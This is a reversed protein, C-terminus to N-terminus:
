PTGKSADGKPPAPVKAHTPDAPDSPSSDTKSESLSSSDATLPIHVTAPMGLPLEDKPDKVFARVEYVLSTRLEETQVSKPTFEAIPSIFGIWGEFKRNPFSDVDISVKMGGHVKGLNIESVYARVWKPDIVALSFVPKTPSAMDGPEMLRTRVVSNAPAHLQADSLQQRLYALQADDAKLRAENEAVEEKRPGLIWVELAKKLADLRADATEAASKANDVDQRSIAEGHSRDSLDKMRAYNRQANGADAKAAEMNAKAQAIEEPRNGHHLREVVARQANVTAEAQVVQPEIRRTDVRALVQGKKIRDGEQVLVDTIRENNQFSLQIQRLDVNGFLKLETASKEGLNFWWTAGAAAGVVVFLLLFLGLRRM